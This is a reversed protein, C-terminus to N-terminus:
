AVEAKGHSLLLDRAAQRVTMGKKRVRVRIKEYDLGTRAVYKILPIKHGAIHAHISRRTNVRQQAATTWRCNGPEYNGNVDIRDITLGNPPGMDDFFCEFGTLGNEGYRWRACVSIGRAGYNRYEKVNPNECRRVMARYIGEGPWNDRNGGPKRKLDAAYCGCSTSKGGRLHHGQIVKKNGCDCLCFWAAMERGTSLRVHAYSYATLRGFRQGSLDIFRGMEFRAPNPFFAIDTGAM